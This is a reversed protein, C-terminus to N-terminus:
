ADLNRARGDIVYWPREEALPPYSKDDLSVKVEVKLNSFGPSDEGGTRDWHNAIRAVVFANMSDLFEQLAERSFTKGPDPRERTMVFDMVDRDAERIDKLMKDADKTNM